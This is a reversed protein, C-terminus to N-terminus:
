AMINLLSCNRSCYIAALDPLCWLLLLTNLVASLGKNHAQSTSRFMIANGPSNGSLSRYIVPSRLPTPATGVWGGAAVPPRHVTPRTGLQVVSLLQLLLHKLESTKSLNEQNNHSYNIGGRDLLVEGKGSRVAPSGFVM